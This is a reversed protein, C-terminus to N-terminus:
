QRKTSVQSDMITEALPTGLDLDTILSLMFVAISVSIEEVLLQENNNQFFFDAGHGNHKRLDIQIMTTM